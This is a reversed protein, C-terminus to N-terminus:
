FLQTLYDPVKHDSASRGAGVCSRCVYFEGLYEHQQISASETGAAYEANCLDCNWKKHTIRQLEQGGGREEAEKRVAEDGERALM